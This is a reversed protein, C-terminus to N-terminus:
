PSLRKRHSAGKVAGEGMIIELDLLFLNLICYFLIYFLYLCLFFFVQGRQVLGESTDLIKLLPTTNAM